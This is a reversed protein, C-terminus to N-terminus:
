KDGTIIEILRKTDKLDSFIFDPGFSKLLESSEDGTCVSIVNVGAGRAAKIDGTTDGIVFVDKKDIKGFQQEAKRIADKVLESRIESIGGFGGLIFYEDIRLHRLKAYAIDEINGTVLGLIINDYDQLGRLLEEVGGLLKSGTLDMKAFEEVMIMIIEHAKREDRMIHYLEMLSYIIQLDTYGYWPPFNDPIKVNFVKLFALEYARWHFDGATLLTHDVDFLVLIKKDDKSM